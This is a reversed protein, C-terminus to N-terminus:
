MAEGSALGRLRKTLRRITGFHRWNGKLPPGDAIVRVAGKLIYINLFAEDVADGRLFGELFGRRVADLSQPSYLANGGLVLIYGLFMGLDDYIAESEGFGEFDVVAVEEDDILINQAIFDGHRAAASIFRGNLPASGLSAQQLIERILGREFGKEQLRSVRLELDALYSDRSYPFPEGHTADQFIRLWVGVRRAMECLASARFPGALRNAYKKLILNLPV